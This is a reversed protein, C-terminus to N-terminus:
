PGSFSFVLAYNPPNKLLLGTEEVADVPMSERVLQQMEERSLFQVDKDGSIYRDMLYLMKSCLGGPEVDKIVLRTRGGRVLRAIDDFFERRAGAPVHHVVDSLLIVDPAQRGMESFDRVSTAPLIEVRSRLEPALWAGISSSLDIMTVRVGPSRPLVLNLLDGDGGGIDLVTAGEPIPPIAEAVSNLDVGFRRYVRGVAPFLPGLIRRAIKGPTM